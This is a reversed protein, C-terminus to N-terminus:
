KPLKALKNAFLDKPSSDKLIGLEVYMGDLADLLSQVADKTCDYLPIALFRKGHEQTTISGEIFTMLQAKTTSRLDVEQNLIAQIFKAKDENFQIKAELQRIDYELKKGVMELRYQVFYHILEAVSQFIKLKGDYGITTLIETHTKELKFYTFPSKDIEIKQAASVKITFGFGNSSCNDEYDKIKDSDILSNLVNIYGERDYGIPLETISYTSRGTAFIKGVTKYQNNGISVVNGSFQPFTPLILENEALFKSPNKLCKKTASVVDSVARPLISSKFGVSIGSIENVLVWPIIPLYHSPEPNEADKSPPAVEVDCFFKKYNDSLSAYIYRPAAAEQIMRSGFSGHGQFLPANNSWDAALGIAAAMASSEGHHYSFKALSGGLEAVKVKKGGEQLMSCLLKRQVPKFGDIVSPIARQELTYMAFEKYDADIIDSISRQTTKM